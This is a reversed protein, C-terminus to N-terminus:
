AVSRKRRAVGTLALLGSGFLWAAAPVPVPAVDWGVDDLGAMDLATFRKRTGTTLNPDMAAEQATNDVQSTTGNAWHGLDTSLPVSGGFSAVSNSGTFTGANVQADWSDATGIGLVHGLEHLAVSFLDNGSFPEDTATNDDVYWSADSDFTIAGGWPAFDTSGVGTQGRSLANDVFSSSGSVGFGGPGGSGLTSGGLARGGVYITLTDAAVSFNSISEGAGTAPNTFTATFNNGGGSDIATLRDTLRSEFVSAASELVARRASDAFFGNSDFSYDINLVIASAPASLGMLLPTVLWGSRLTRNKM